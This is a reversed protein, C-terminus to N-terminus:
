FDLFNHVLWGEKLLVDEFTRILSPPSDDNYRIISANLGVYQQCNPTIKAQYQWIQEYQSPTIGQHPSHISYGDVSFVVDSM